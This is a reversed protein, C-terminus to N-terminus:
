KVLIYLTDGLLREEGWNDNSAYRCVKLSKKSIVAVVNPLTMMHCVLVMGVGWYIMM